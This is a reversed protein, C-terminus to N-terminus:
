LTSNRLIARDLIVLMRGAEKSLDVGQTMGRNSIQLRDGLRSGEGRDGRVELGAELLSARFSPWDASHRLKPLSVEFSIRVGAGSNAPCACLWGWEPHEQWDYLSDLELILEGAAVVQAMLEQRNPSWCLQVFRIHDEDGTCLYRGPGLVRVAATNRSLHGGGLWPELEAGFLAGSETRGGFRALAAGDGLLMRAALATRKPGLTQVYPVGCLNRAARVRIRLGAGEITSAANATRARGTGQPAGGGGPPGQLVTALRARLLPVDRISNEREPRFEERHGLADCLEKTRAHALRDKPRAPALSGGRGGGYAEILPRLEPGLDAYCQGCGLFGTETFKSLTGGCAGCSRLRHVGRIADCSECFGESFWYLGAPNGVHVTTEAGCIPCPVM